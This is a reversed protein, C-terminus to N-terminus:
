DKRRGILDRITSLLSVVLWLVIIIPLMLLFQIFGQIASYEKPYTESSTKIYTLSPETGSYEILLSVNFTFQCYDFMNWTGCMIQLYNTKTDPGERPIVYPTVDQERSDGNCPLMSWNRYIERMDNLNGQNSFYIGAGAYAYGGYWTKSTDDCHVSFKLRASVITAGEPLSLTVNFTEWITYWAGGGPKILKYDKLIVIEKVTTSM